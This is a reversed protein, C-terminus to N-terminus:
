KRQKIYADIDYQQMKLFFNFVEKNVKINSLAKEIDIGVHGQITVEEKVEKEVYTIEETLPGQQSAQLKPIEFHVPDHYNKFDGGWKLGLQRAIQPVGTGEWQLKSSSKMLVNGDKIINMDIARDQEHSSTGPSANLPNQLNLLTQEEFTRSTSNIIVSYGSKNVLGIFNAFRTRNNGNKIKNLETQNQKSLSTFPTTPAVEQEPYQPAEPQPPTVVKEVVTRTITRKQDPYRKKEIKIDTNIVEFYGLKVGGVEVGKILKEVMGRSIAITTTGDISTDSIPTSHQVSDIHYIEGTSLYRIFSGRKLRRDRNVTLSGQRTFPLHAHSEILYKLDLLAQEEFRSIDTLGDKSVTSVYPNYNHEVILPRSGWIEAYEKFYLSPTYLTTLANGGTSGFNKPEFRYWSYAESSDFRIDEKIVNHQEIDIISNITNVEGQETNIKGDLLTVMSVKDFPPKRVILHFQDGYTDCYFEVFPEKAVKKLFNLLSGQDTSLSGDILKRETVGKDIVLKIIQWIGKALKTNTDRSSSKPSNEKDIQRDIQDIIRLLQTQTTLLPNYKQVGSVLGYEYVFSPLDNKELLERQGSVHKVNSKEWGLTKNTKSIRTKLDRLQRQFLYFSDYVKERNITLLLGLEQLVTEILSLSEEKLDPEDVKTPPPLKKPELYSTNRRDGYSEFLSDPAIGINSLQQIVFKLINEISNNQFLNLYYLSNSGIIRRALENEVTSAGALRFQGAMNELNYFYVGDDIFLKVLDRGKIEITVDNTEPSVTLQNTDILGIMDYIRGPLNHRGIGLLSSDKERQTKEMELTEHRIFVLDNDQLTDSFYFENRKLSNDQYLSADSLYEGTNTDYKLSEQSLVWRTHLKGGVEVTELKGVLPPLSFTFNGGNKGVFTTLKDIFPTIDILEGEIADDLLSLARCWVWVTINPNQTTTRGLEPHTISELTQIYGLDSELDALAKAKFIGEDNSVVELGQTLLGTIAIETVPINLVTGVKLLLEKPSKDRNEKAETVNYSNFISERNTFGSLGKISLFESERGIYKSAPSSIEACYDGVTKIEFSQFVIQYTEKSM